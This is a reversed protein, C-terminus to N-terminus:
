KRLEVVLAIATAVIAIMLVYIIWNRKGGECDSQSPPLIVRRVINVYKRPDKDTDCKM